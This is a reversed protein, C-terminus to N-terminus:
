SILVVRSNRVVVKPETRIAENWVATPIHAGTNQRVKDKLGRVSMRKHKTAQLIRVIERRLAPTTISPPRKGSPM